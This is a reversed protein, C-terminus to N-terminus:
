HINLLLIRILFINLLLFFFHNAPHLPERVGRWKSSKKETICINLSTFKSSLSISGAGLSMWTNNWFQLPCTSWQTSGYILIVTSRNRGVSFGYKFHRKRSTTLLTSSGMRSFLCPIRSHWKQIVSAKNVQTHRKTIKSCKGPTHTGM